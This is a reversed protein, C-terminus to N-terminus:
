WNIVQGINRNKSFLSHVLALVCDNDSAAKATDVSGLFKFFRIYVDGENVFAVMVKEAGAIGPLLPLGRERRYLREGERM